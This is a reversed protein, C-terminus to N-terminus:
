GMNKCDCPPEGWLGKEWKVISLEKGDVLGQLKEIWAKPVNPIGQNASWAIATKSDLYIVDRVEAIAAAKGLAIFEAQNNTGTGLDPCEVVMKKQALDYVRCVMKGPNNKCGGDCVLGATPYDTPKEGRIFAEALEKTSFKKFEPKVFGDVQAKCEEWTVYIGPVNGAKVAYFSM